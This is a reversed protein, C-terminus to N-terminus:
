LIDARLMNSLWKGPYSVAQTVVSHCFVILLCGYCFPWTFKRVTYSFWGSEDSKELSCDSNEHTPCYTDPEKLIYLSPEDPTLTLVM